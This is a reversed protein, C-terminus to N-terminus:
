KKLQLLALLASHATILIPLRGVSHGPKRLYHKAQSSSWLLPHKRREDQDEACDRAGLLTVVSIAATIVNFM